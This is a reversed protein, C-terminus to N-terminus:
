AAKTEPETDDANRALVESLQQKLREVKAVVANLRAKQILNWGVPTPRFISHRLRTNKQLARMMSMGPTLSGPNRDLMNNIVKKRIVCHLFFGIVLVMVMSLAYFLPRESLATMVVVENFQGGSFFVATALTIIVVAVMLMDVMLVRRMWQDRFKMIEMVTNEEFSVVINELYNLSEHLHSKSSEDLSEKKKDLKAIVPCWSVQDSFSSFKDLVGLSIGIKDAAQYQKLIKILIDRVDVLPTDTKKIHKIIQLSGPMKDAAKDSCITM